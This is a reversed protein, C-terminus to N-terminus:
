RIADLFEKLDFVFGHILAVYWLGIEKCKEDRATEKNECAVTAERITSCMFGYKQMDAMGGPSATLCLNIDFGAYILHSIGEQKSLALLQHGNEAIGEDGEPMADKPFTRNPSGRRVDERNGAGVWVNDEHFRFIKELSPDRVIREPPEPAPGALDVARHYGPLEKYYDGGGVVHFLSIESDRAAGLLRPFITRCVEYTHPVEACCRWWGPYDEYTGIDWAHMVVLATRSLDIEIEGRKWGGYGEEPYELDYDADFQEYYNVTAKRLEAM